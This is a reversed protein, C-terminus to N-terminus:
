FGLSPQFSSDLRDSKKNNESATLLQLNKWHWARSFDIHCTSSYNFVSVPIVHDVHLKSSLYDDWSYGVPITKMLKAKLKEPKYGFLAVFENIRKGHKMCSHLVKTAHSRIKRKTLVNKYTKKEKNLWTNKIESKRFLSIWYKSKLHAYFGKYWAHAAMVAMDKETGILNCKIEKIMKDLEIKAEKIEGVVSETTIGLKEAIKSNVASAIDTMDGFRDKNERKSIAATSVGYKKSLTRLSAGAEREARVSQWTDQTLRPM